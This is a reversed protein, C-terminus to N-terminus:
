RAVLLVRYKTRVLEALMVHTLEKSKPEFMAYAIGGDVRTWDALGVRPLSADKFSVAAAIQVLEGSSAFRWGSLARNSSQRAAWSRLGIVDSCYGQPVPVDWVLRHGDGAGDSACGDTPMWEQSYVGSVRRFRGRLDAGLHIQSVLRVSHMGDEDPFIERRKDEAAVDDQSRWLGFSLGALLLADAFRNRPSDM